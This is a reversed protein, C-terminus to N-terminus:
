IRELDKGYKVGLSYSFAFYYKELFYFLDVIEKLEEKQKGSLGQELAEIKDTLKLYKENFENNERLSKVKSEVFEYIYQYQNNQFLEM